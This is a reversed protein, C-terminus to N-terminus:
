DIVKPSEQIRAEIVEVLTSMSESRLVRLVDIKTVHGKKCLLGALQSHLDEFSSLMKQSDTVPVLVYSDDVGHLFSYVYDASM